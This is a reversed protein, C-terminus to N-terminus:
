SPEPIMVGRSILQAVRAPLEPDPGGGAILFHYLAHGAVLRAVLGAPTADPVEGRAAARAVVTELVGLRPEIFRQRLADMLRPEALCDAVLGAIMEQVGPTGYVEQQAAVVAELDGVLSGTDPLEISGAGGFAADFVLLPKRNWRRYVTQKGVGAAAAVSEMTLAGYGVDALLRRTVDLIAADVAPDRPRGLTTPNAVM